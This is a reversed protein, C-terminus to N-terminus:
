QAAYHAVQDGVVLVAFILLYLTCQVLNTQVFLHKRVIGLKRESPWYPPCCAMCDLSIALTRMLTSFAILRKFSKLINESIIQLRILLFCISSMNM